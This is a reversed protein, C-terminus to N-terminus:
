QPNHNANRARGTFYARLYYVIVIGIVILLCGLYKPGRGPDYNVSLRSLYIQDRGRDKGALQDFEPEGPTWPGSFSAQFLRYTRGTQPDAFDVPANLTILVNERLKRPPTGYDLFDVLSSYHSATDSGPDLKRQFRRLFLQFGLYLEDPRLAIGVRRRPATVIEERKETLPESSSAAVDFEKATGDVSLRVRATPQPESTYDLVELTIGDKSYITGQSRRPLQWPFWPLRAYEKWSFPGAVFPVPIWEFVLSSPDDSMSGHGTTATRPAVLPRPKTNSSSVRLEFHYSDKYARAATHGDFVSLQAEIGNRQTLWCGALLVLIGAHTVVFGAQRWKWPMRILMALLVNVALLVNMGSFWGSQYIGFHAAETGYQREVLTAWALVTAYIAILAVALYVSGLAAFLGLFWRLPLRLDSSRLRSLKM